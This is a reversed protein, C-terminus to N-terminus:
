HKENYSRYISEKPQYLYKEMGSSAVSAQYLRTTQAQFVGGRAIGKFNAKVKRNQDDGPTSQLSFLSGEYYGPGPVELNSAMLASGKIRTRDFTSSGFAAIQGHYHSEKIPLPKSDYYGPGGLVASSHNHGARASDALWIDAAKADM